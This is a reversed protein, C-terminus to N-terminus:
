PKKSGRQRLSIRDLWITGAESMTIVLRVPGGAARSHLAVSYEKWDGGVEPLTTRALVEGRAETELSVTLGFGRDNERPLTRAHFDLEYWGESEVAFNSVCQGGVGCRPGPNVVVLKLAQSNTHGAESADREVCAAGEDGVCNWGVLGAVDFDSNRLLEIGPGPCSQRPAVPPPLEGARASLGLLGGLCITGCIIILRTSGAM